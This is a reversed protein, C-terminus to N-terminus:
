KKSFAKHSPSDMVDILVAASPRTAYSNIIEILQEDGKAAKRAQAPTLPKRQSAAAFGLADFVPLVDASWKERGQVTGITKGGAPGNTKIHHTIMDELADRRADILQKSDSLLSLEAIMDEVSMSDLQYPQQVYQGFAFGAKRAASCTGVLPCFRCHKGTTMHPESNAQQRLTEWVPFLESLKFEQSRVIGKSTYCFPQVITHVVKTDPFKTPDLGIENCVGLTYDALQWSDPNVQLHGNKYDSTYITQNAFDALWLDPTGNNEAHIQPMYVRQEIHPQVGTRERLELAHDVMHQAGEAMEETILTGDPDKEGVYDAADMEDLFAQEFVWHAGTGKRSEETEISPCAASAHAYGNCLGWIPAGSPAWFAHGESM